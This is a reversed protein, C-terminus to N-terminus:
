KGSRLTRSAEKALDDEDITIRAAPQTRPAPQDPNRETHATDVTTVVVPAPQREEPATTPQSIKVVPKVAAIIKTTPIELGNPNVPVGPNTVVMTKLQTTPQLAVKPQSVPSHKAIMSGLPISVVLLLVGVLIAAAALWFRNPHRATVRAQGKTVFQQHSLEWAHKVEAQAINLILEGRAPNEQRYEDGAQNLWAKADEIHVILQTPDFQRM